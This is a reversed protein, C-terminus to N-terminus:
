VLWHAAYAPDTLAPRDLRFPSSTPRRRARRDVLDALLRGFTPAFKFGHAPASASSSRRTGPCRRSCSTATPPSPTSAACRGCRRARQRAADRAMHTPSGRRLMAPDPERRRPRGPRGGPRRLGPGGQGDARRLLPLRLVVPRGDLDVAAAPGARLREPREPAFYTVQELTVEAPATVDSAPSCTTPGPTPASSSGPRRRVDGAATAVEVGSATSDCPAAGPTPERLEAGHRGRWRGADAATGRGAPVIARTAGPLARRHGAPLAFQPWRERSRRRRRAARLRHRGRDLSATYDAM